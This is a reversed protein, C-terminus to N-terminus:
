SKCNAQWKLVCQNKDCKVAMNQCLFFLSQQHGHKDIDLYRQTLTYVDLETRWTFLDQDSWFEDEGNLM